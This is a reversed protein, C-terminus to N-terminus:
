AAKATTKVSSTTATSTTSATTTFCQYKNANGCTGILRPSCGKPCYSSNPQTGSSGWCFASGCNITTTRTTTTFTTTKTSISSLTTSVTTSWTTIVGGRYLQQQATGYNSLIYQSGVALAAAAVVFVVISFLAARREIGKLDM